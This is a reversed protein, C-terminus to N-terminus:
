FTFCKTTKSSNNIVHLYGRTGRTAIYLVIMGYVLALLLTLFLDVIHGGEYFQALMYPLLLSLIVFTEAIVIGRYQRPSLESNKGLM